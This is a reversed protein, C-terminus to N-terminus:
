SSTAAISVYPNVTDDAYFNVLHKEIAAVQEVEGLAMLEPFEQNLAEFEETAANVADALTPDNTVFQCVTTNDLGVTRRAGSKSRIADLQEQVSAM